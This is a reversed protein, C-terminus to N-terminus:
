KERESEFKVLADYLYQPIVEYRDSKEICCYDEAFMGYKNNGIKAVHICSEGISLVDTVPESEPEPKNIVYYGLYDGDRKPKPLPRFLGFPEHTM